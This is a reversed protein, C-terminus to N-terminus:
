ERTEKKQYPRYAWLPCTKATCDGIGETLPSEYACCNQCHAKIADIPSAVGHAAKLYLGARIDPIVNQAYTLCKELRPTDLCRYKFKNKASRDLVYQDADFDIKPM